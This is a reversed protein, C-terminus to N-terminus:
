YVNYCMCLLVNRYLKVPMFFIIPIFWLHKKAFQEKLVNVFDNLNLETECKYQVIDRHFPNSVGARTM